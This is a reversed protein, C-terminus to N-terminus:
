RRGFTTNNISQGFSKNIEELRKSMVLIVNLEAIDLRDM